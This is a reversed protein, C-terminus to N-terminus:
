NLNQQAEPRESYVSPSRVSMGICTLYNKVAYKM